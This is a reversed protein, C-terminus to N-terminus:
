PTINKDFINTSLVYMNHNIEDGDVFYQTKRCLVRRKLEDQIM